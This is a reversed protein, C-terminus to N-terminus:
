KINRTLKIAISKNLLMCTIEKPTSTPSEKVLTIITMIMNMEKNIKRGTFLLLLSVSKKFAKRIVSIKSISTIIIKKTFSKVERSYNCFGV